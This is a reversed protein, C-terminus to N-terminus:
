FVMIALIRITPSELPYTSIAAGFAAPFLVSSSGDPLVLSTPDSLAPLTLILPMTVAAVKLPLTFEVPIEVKVLPTTTEAPLVEAGDILGLPSEFVQINKGLASVM